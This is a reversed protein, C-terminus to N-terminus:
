LAGIDDLIDALNANMCDTALNISQVFNGAPILYWAREGTTKLSILVKGDGLYEYGEIEAETYSADAKIMM